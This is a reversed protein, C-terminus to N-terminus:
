SDFTDEWPSGVGPKKKQASLALALLGIAIGVSFSYPTFFYWTQEMAGYDHGPLIWDSFMKPRM